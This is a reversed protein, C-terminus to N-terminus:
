VPTRLEQKMDYIPEDPHFSQSSRFIEPDGSNFTQVQWGGDIIRGCRISVLRYICLFIPFGPGASFFWSAFRGAGRALIIMCSPWAIGPKAVAVSWVALSPGGSLPTLTRTWSRRRVLHVTPRQLAPALQTYTYLSKHESDLGLSITASESAADFVLCV